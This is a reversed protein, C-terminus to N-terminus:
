TSEHLFTRFARLFRERVKPHHMGLHREGIVRLTMRTFFLVVFSFFALVLAAFSEREVLLTTYVSDEWKPVFSRLVTRAAGGFPVRSMRLHVTSRYDYSLNYNPIKSVAFRFTAPDQLQERTLPEGDAGRPIVRFSPDVIVWRTGILVEAVVHKAMRQDDLLLLRRAPLGSANAVNVFANTATGCVRLLSRYNLTDSPDRDSIMGPGPARDPGHAMWDLITQAKDLPTASAPIIADSFGRLYKRTSYEWGASYLLFLASLLLLINVCYWFTEFIRARRM